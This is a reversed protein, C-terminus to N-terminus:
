STLAPKVRRARPKKARKIIKLSIVVGLPYACFGSSADDKNDITTTTILIPHDHQTIQAWYLGFSVRHAVEAKDPNGISDEFIDLWTVEILDGRYLEPLALLSGGRGPIPGANGFKM